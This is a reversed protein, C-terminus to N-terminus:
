SNELVLCGSCADRHADYNRINDHGNQTRASTISCKAKTEGIVADLCILSTQASAIILLHFKISYQTNWISYLSM